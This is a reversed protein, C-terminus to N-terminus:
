SADVEEITVYMNIDSEPVTTCTFTLADVEQATPLVGAAIYAAQSALAPMVHILQASEDAIVGPVSVTQANSSWASVPLSILFAKPKTAGGENAEETFEITYPGGGLSGAMSASGGGTVKLFKSNIKQWFYSLGTKDLFNNAM